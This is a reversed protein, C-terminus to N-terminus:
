KKEEKQCKLVICNRWDENDIRHKRNGTVPAGCFVCRSGLDSEVIWNAEIAKKLEANSSRLSALEDCRRKEEADFISRLSSQSKTLREVEAERQRLTFILNHIFEGNKDVITSEGIQYTISHNWDKEFKDIDKSLVLEPM